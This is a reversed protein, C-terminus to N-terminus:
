FFCLCSNEMKALFLALDTKLTSVIRYDWPNQLLPEIKRSRPGLLISFSSLSTRHATQYVLRLARKERPSLATWPFVIKRPSVLSPFDLIESNSFPQNLIHRIKYIVQYFFSFTRGELIKVQILFYKKTKLSKQLIKKDNRQLLAQMFVSVFIM